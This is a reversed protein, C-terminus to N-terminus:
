QRTFGSGGFVNHVHAGVAGPDVIPDMRSMAITGPGSFIFHDADGLATGALGLLLSARLFTRAM